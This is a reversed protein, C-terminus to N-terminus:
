NATKTIPKVGGAGRPNTIKKQGSTTAGLELPTGHAPDRTNLRTDGAADLQDLVRSFALFIAPFPGKVAQSPRVCALFSITNLTSPQRRAHLYRDSPELARSPRDPGTEPGPGFTTNQIGTLVVKQNNPQGPMPLATQNNLFPMGPFTLCQKTSHRSRTCRKPPLALGSTRHGRNHKNNNTITHQQQQQQLHSKTRFVLSCGFARAEVSCPAPPSKPAPHQHM